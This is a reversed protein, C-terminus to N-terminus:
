RDIRRIKSRVFAKRMRRILEKRKTPLVEVTKEIKAAAVTRALKPLKAKSKFGYVVPNYLMFSFILLVRLIM